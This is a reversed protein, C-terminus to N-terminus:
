LSIAELEPRCVHLIEYRADEGPAAQDSWLTVSMMQWTAPDLANAVLCVGPERSREELNERARAVYDQPDVDPPLTELSRAASRPVAGYGNGRRVGLGTWTRVAPRGFSGALGAFGGGGWLFRAMGDVDSWLYLPAYQNVPSGDRGRERILYAKLGLGPYDDLLHGKTAVRDRIIGMDYDAPLTIEYQMAYM